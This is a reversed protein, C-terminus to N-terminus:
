NLPTGDWVHRLRTVVVVLDTTHFADCAPRRFSGRARLGAFWLASIRSSQGRTSTVGDDTSRGKTM